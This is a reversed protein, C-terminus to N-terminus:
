RRRTATRGARSDCPGRTRPGDRGPAVGLPPVRRTRGRDGRRGVRYDRGVARRGGLAARRRGDPNRGRLPGVAARPDGARAVPRVTGRGVGRYHHFARRRAGRASRRQRLAETNREADGRSEVPRRTERPGQLPALRRHRGRGTWAGVATQIRRPHARRRSRGLRHTELSQHRHWETLARQRSRGGPREREPVDHTQSSM